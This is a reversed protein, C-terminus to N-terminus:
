TDASGVIPMPRVGVWVGPGQGGEWLRTAEIHRVQRDDKFAVGNLGDLILKVVNDLDPTKMPVLSRKGKATLEGSKKFHDKPRAYYAVVKVQVPVDIPIPPSWWLSAVEHEKRRTGDPTYVRGGRGLRPRGKGVPEGPIWASPM